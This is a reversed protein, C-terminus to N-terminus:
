TDAQNRKNLQDNAALKRKRWLGVGLGILGPLLAPTPVPTSNGEIAFSLEVANVDDFWADNPQFRGFDNGQQNSTAWFWNLRTGATNNVVSLLYKSPKLTFPQTPTFSYNYFFTNQPANSRNVNINNFAVIPSIAPRGDLFEFIRVSFQDIAPDIAVIQESAYVGSWTIRTVDSSNTFAFDDGAEVPLAFNNGPKVSLDFDSEVAAQFDPAGNDFLVAAQVFDNTSLLMLAAGLVGLTFRQPATLTIMFSIVGVSPRASLTM